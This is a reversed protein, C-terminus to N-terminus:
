KTIVTGSQLVVQGVKYYLFSAESKLLVQVVNYCLLITGYVQPENKFLKLTTIESRIPIHWSSPIVPVIPLLLVNSFAVTALWIYSIYIFFDLM